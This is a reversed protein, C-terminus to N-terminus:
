LHGFLNDRHYDGLANEDEEAHHGVTKGSYLDLQGETVKPETKKEDYFHPDGHYNGHGFEVETDTPHNADSYTHIASFQNWNINPFTGQRGPMIDIARKTRYKSSIWEKTDDMEASNHLPHESHFVGRRMLPAPSVEYVRARDNPPNPRDQAHASFRRKQESRTAFDWAINEDETAFAYQSSKQGAYGHDKYNTRGAKNAPLVHRGVGIDHVTGHFFNLNREAM